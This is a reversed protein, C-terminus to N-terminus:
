TRAFTFGREGPGEKELIDLREKAEALTPIHGDEVWWLVYNPHALKHFWRARSRMFYSHVTQHTFNRLSELDEWVSMNVIIMPDYNWPHDALDTSTSSNDGELRWVFGPSSEALQNVPGLFNRFESIEDSELPATLQAINLQALQM